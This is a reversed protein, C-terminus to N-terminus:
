DGIIFYEREMVYVGGCKSRANLFLSDPLFPLIWVLPDDPLHGSLTDDYIENITFELGGREMPIDQQCLVKSGDLREAAVFRLNYNKGGEHEIDIWCQFEDGCDGAWWFSFPDDDTASAMGSLGLLFAAALSKPLRM